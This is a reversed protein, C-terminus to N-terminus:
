GGTNEMGLLTFSRLVDQVLADQLPAGSDGHVFILSYGLGRAGLPARVVIYEIWNPSDNDGLRVLRMSEGASIPEMDMSIEASETSTARLEGLRNEALGLLTVGGLHRRISLRWGDPGLVVLSSTRKEIVWSNPVRVSYGEMPAVLTTWGDVPAPLSEVYVVDAASASTSEFTAPPAGDEGGPVGDDVESIAAVSAIVDPGSGDTAAAINESPDDDPAEADVERLLALREEAERAINEALAEDPPPVIADPTIEDVDYIHLIGLPPLAPPVGYFVIRATVGTEQDIWYDFRITRDAAPNGVTGLGMGRLTGVTTMGSIHHAEVWTEIPTFVRKPGHFALDQSGEFLLSGRESLVGPDIVGTVTEPPEVGHWGDGGRVRWWRENDISRVEYEPSLETGGVIVRQNARGPLATEGATWTRGTMYMYSFGTSGSLRELSDELMVTARSDEGKSVTVSAREGGECGRALNATGLGWVTMIILGLFVIVRRVSRNESRRKLM